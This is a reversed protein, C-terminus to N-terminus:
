IRNWDFSLCDKFWNDLTNYNTKVNNLKCPVSANAENMETRQSSKYKLMVNLVQWSSKELKKSIRWTKANNLQGRPCSRYILVAYGMQWASKLLNGCEKKTNKVFFCKDGWALCELIARVTKEKNKSAMTYVLSWFQTLVLKVTSTQSGNGTEGPLGVYQRPSPVTRHVTGAM